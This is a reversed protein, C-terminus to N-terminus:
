TRTMTNRVVMFIDHGQSEEWEHNEISYYGKFEYGPKTPATLGSPLPQGYTATVSTSGGTGGQPDLTVTNGIWKAYLTVETVQPDLLREDIDWNRASTMNATYYQTGQGNPNYYYGGFTYGERHPAELGEIPMDQNYTAIIETAGYYLQGGQLDFVVTSKHAQWNAYLTFNQAKDYNRVSKM